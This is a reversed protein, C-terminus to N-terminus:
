FGRLLNAVASFILITYIEGCLNGFDGIFLVTIGKIPFESKQLPFSLQIKREKYKNLILIAHCCKKFFLFLLCNIGFKNCHKDKETM